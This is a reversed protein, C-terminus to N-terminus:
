KKGERESKGWTERIAKLESCKEFIGILQGGSVFDMESFRTDMIGAHQMDRHAYREFGTLLFLMSKDINFIKHLVKSLRGRTLRIKEPNEMAAFEMLNLEQIRKNREKATPFKEFNELNMMMLDSLDQVTAIKRDAISRFVSLTSVTEASFQMSFISLLFFIVTKKM